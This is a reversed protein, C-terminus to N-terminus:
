LCIDELGISFALFVISFCCVFIVLVLKALWRKKVIGSLMIVNKLDIMPGFILFSMVSGLSFQNLFGHAVVADSSSCMSLLFALAMMIFMSMTLSETQKRLGLMPLITQLVASILAAVLLYKGVNLFESYSHQLLQIVKGGKKNTLTPQMCGCSCTYKNSSQTFIEQSFNEKGLAFVTGICLATVIGLGTRALVIKINGGFAYYTSLLVIPNIIPTVTMFVVASSLPFEKRVMSQFIPVSACDCSPLCFGAFVSFLMGVFPNKPFHKEIFKRPIFIQVAASILTGIMLFPFAQLLIGIYVTMIKDFPINQYQSLIYFMIWATFLILLGICLAAFPHQVEELTMEMESKSGSKCLDIDPNVSRVSKKAKLFKKYTDANRFISLDSETLQQVPIMGVGGLLIDLKTTDCIHIIKKIFCNDCLMESSKEKALFIEYLLSLSAMGNWEVWLEDVDKDLVTKCITKSIEEVHNKLDDTSFKLIQCACNKALAEDGSEFQVVCIQKHQITRQKLIRNLFSTKGSGLFGVIVYSPILFSV